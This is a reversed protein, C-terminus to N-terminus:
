TRGSVEVVCSVCKMVVTDFTRGLAKPDLAPIGENSPASGVPAIEAHLFDIHEEMEVSAVNERAIELAEPDM